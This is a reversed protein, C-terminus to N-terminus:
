VNMSQPWYRNNNRNSNCFAALTNSLDCAALIHSVLKSVGTTKHYKLLTIQTGVTDAVAVIFATEKSTLCDSLTLEPLHGCHFIRLHHTTQRYGSPGFISLALLVRFLHLRAGPLRM